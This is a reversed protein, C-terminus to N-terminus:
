FTFSTWSASYGLVWLLAPSILWSGIILIVGIVASWLINRGLDYLSPKAGSALILIGGAMIMIGLLPALLKFFVFDFIRKGMVILHGLTCPFSVGTRGVVAVLSVSTITKTAGVSATCQTRADNESVAAFLDYSNKGTSNDRFRCEYTNAALLTVASLVSGPPVSKQRCLAIANDTDVAVVTGGGLITPPVTAPVTSFDCEYGYTPALNVGCPVLGTAIPDTCLDASVPQAFLLSITALSFFLLLATKKM